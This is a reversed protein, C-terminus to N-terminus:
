RRRELRELIARAEEVNAFQQPISSSSSGLPPSHSPSQSRSRRRYEGGREKGSKGSSSRRHHHYKKDHKHLKKKTKRKRSLSSHHREVSRSRSRQYSASSRSSQSLSRSGKSAYTSSSSSSRSRRRRERRRHHDHQREKRRFSPKRSGHPEKTISSTTHHRKDRRRRKEINDDNDDKKRDTYGNPPLLQDDDGCAVSGLRDDTTDSKTMWAPLTMGRGRGMPSITNKAGAIHSSSSLSPERGVPLPPPSPEGEDDGVLDYGNFSSIAVDATGRSTTVGRLILNGPDIATSMGINSVLARGLLSNAGSDNDNRRGGSGSGSSMTRLQDEELLANDPDLDHGTEQNVYKMSLKIKHRTRTRKTAHEDNDDADITELQIDIVKVWVRDNLSVIDSVNSVKSTYLQSIHVLGSISFSPTASASSIPNSALKVFCGYPEIRTVEGHSISFLKPPQFRQYHQQQQHSM